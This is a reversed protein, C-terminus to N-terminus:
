NSSELESVLKVEIGVTGRRLGDRFSGRRSSSFFNSQQWLHFSNSGFIWIGFRYPSQANGLFPVVTSLSFACARCKDRPLLLRELGGKFQAKVAKWIAHESAVEVERLFPKELQM